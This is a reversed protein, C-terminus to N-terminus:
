LVKLELFLADRDDTENSVEIEYEGPELWGRISGDSLGEIVQGAEAFAMEGSQGVLSLGYGTTGSSPTFSSGLANIQIQIPGGGEIRYSAVVGNSEDFEYDFIRVESPTGTLDEYGQLSAQLAPGGRFSSWGLSALKDGGELAYLTGNNNGVLLTGDPALVPSSDIFGSFETEGILAGNSSLVKLVGESGSNLAGAYIRGMGDVCPTSYYNAGIFTRWNLDGDWSFSYLYGDRGSILCSRGMGEVFSGEIIGGTEHKWELSGDTADLAYVFYNQCGVFVLGTSTIMPSSSIGDDRSGAGIEAPVEWTWLEQGNSDIATVAGAVSGVYVNGASDVAPSSDLEGGVEFDWKLSGDPNIAYFFGDSGGVYITGDEAVAPSAYVLSPMAFEWVLTGNSTNLALIRDDWTGIYLVSDDNSLTPSSEIWDTTQFRWRQQGNADLSYVYKDTSGFYVNGVSDITPSSVVPEGTAFEWVVEGLEASRLSAGVALSVCVGIVFKFM